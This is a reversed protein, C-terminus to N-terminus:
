AATRGTRNGQLQCTKTCKQVCIGTTCGCGTNTVCVYGKGCDTQKDCFCPQTSETDCNCFGNCACVGKGTRIHQFCYCNHYQNNGCNSYSTSCTGVPSCIDTNESQAFVQGPLWFALAGGALIGAFRLTAQRRSLTENALTKTLDSFWETM